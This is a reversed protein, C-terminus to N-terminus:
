SRGGNPTAAQESSRRTPSTPRYPSPRVEFRRRLLHQLSAVLITQSTSPGGSVSGDVIEHTVVEGVTAQVVGSHGTTEM